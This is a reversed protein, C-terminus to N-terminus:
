SDVPTLLCARQHSFVVVGEAANATPTTTTSKIGFPAQVGPAIM